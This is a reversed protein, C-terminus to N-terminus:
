LPSQAKQEITVLTESFADIHEIKTDFATMLRIVLPDQQWVYFSFKELLLSLIEPAEVRCFVANAEVPYCVTLLSSNRIRAALENAMQNAQSANRHWLDDSLFVIFQASLFRMKSLIHGAQKQLLAFNRSLDEQFFIVAEAGMLGNKTGGFSLIDVSVEQTIERLSKGLAVAANSLRAGDVHFLLGNAKAFQSVAKLESLQYVTGLETTQSISIVQPRSAHPTMKIAEKVISNAVQLSEENLKGHHHPLQFLKCHLFAEPAGCESTVIHAINSCLIGGYPTIAPRLGLINAATGSAVLYPFAQNGFTEKLREIAVETYRDNGYSPVNGTNAQLLAEMVEPSVGSTNDSSFNIKQSSDKRSLSPAHHNSPSYKM